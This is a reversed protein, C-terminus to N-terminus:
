PYLPNLDEHIAEAPSFFFPLHRLEKEIKRLKCPDFFLCFDLVKCTKFRILM